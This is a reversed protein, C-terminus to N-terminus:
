KRKYQISKLNEDLSCFEYGEEALPELLMPLAKLTAVMEPASMGIM